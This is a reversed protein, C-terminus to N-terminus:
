NKFPILWILNIVTFKPDFGFMVNLIIVSLTITLPKYYKKNMCNSVATLEVVIKQKILM